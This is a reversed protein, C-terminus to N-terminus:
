LRHMTQSATSTAIHSRPLGRSCLLLDMAPNAYIDKPGANVNWWAFATKPYDLLGAPCRLSAPWTNSVARAPSADHSPMCPPGLWQGTSFAGRNQAFEMALLNSLKSAAGVHPGPSPGELPGGPSPHSRAAGLPAWFAKSPRSMVYHGLRLVPLRAFITGLPGVTAKLCSAEGWLLPLFGQSLWRVRCQSSLNLLNM